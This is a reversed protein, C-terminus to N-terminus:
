CCSAEKAAPADTVGIPTPACCAAATEISQAEDAEQLKMGCECPTTEPLNDKLVVNRVNLALHAKLAKIEQSTSM